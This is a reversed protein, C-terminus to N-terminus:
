TEINPRRWVSRSVPLAPQIPDSPTNLQTALLVSTLVVLVAALPAVLVTLRM